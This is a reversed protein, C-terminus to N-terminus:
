DPKRRKLRRLRRRYDDIDHCWHEEIAHVYGSFWRTAGLLVARYLTPGQAMCSHEIRMEHGAMPPVFNDDFRTTIIVRQQPRAVVDLAYGQPELWFCARRFGSTGGESIFVAIDVMEVFPDNLVNSADLALEYDGLVLTLPLWGHRPAGLRLEIARVFPASTQDTASSM